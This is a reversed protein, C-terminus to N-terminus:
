AQQSTHRENEARAVANELRCLKRDNDRLRQETRQGEQKIKTLEQNNFPFLASLVILFKFM